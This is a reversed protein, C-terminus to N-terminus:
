NPNYSAPMVRVEDRPVTWKISANNRPNKWTYTDVFRARVQRASTDGDIKVAGEDKLDYLVNTATVPQYAAVSAPAPVAPTAAALTRDTPASQPQRFNIAVFAAVLALAALGATRWGLWKWSSLNTATAYRPRVSAPLEAALERNVQALWRPAARRPQLTKLEAELEQLSEDM